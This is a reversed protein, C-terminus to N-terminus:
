GGGSGCPGQRAGDNVQGAGPLWALGPEGRVARERLGPWALGPRSTGSPSAIRYEWSPASRSSWRSEYERVAAPARNAMAQDGTLEDAALLPFGSGNPRIWIV